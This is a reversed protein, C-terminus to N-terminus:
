NKWFHAIIKEIIIKAVVLIVKGLCRCIVQKHVLLWKRYEELCSKSLARFDKKRM